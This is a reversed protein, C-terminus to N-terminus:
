GRAVAVVTVFQNSTNPLGPMLLTRAVVPSKLMGRNVEAVIAVGQTNLGAVGVGLRHLTPPKVNSRSEAVITV